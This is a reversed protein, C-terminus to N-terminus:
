RNQQPWPISKEGVSISSIAGLDNIEHFMPVEKKRLAREIIMTVLIASPAFRFPHWAFCLPALAALSLFLQKEHWSIWLARAYVILCLFLAFLGLDWPVQAFENHLFLVSRSSFDNIRVSIRMFTSPGVGLLINKWNLVHRGCTHDSYLWSCLYKGGWRELRGDMDFHDNHAHSLIVFYLGVLTSAAAGLFYRLRLRRFAWVLAYTALMAQATAAHHTLITPIALFWLWLPGLPLSLAVFACNFSPAIMLGRWGLWVCALEWVMLFPLYRWFLIRCRRDMFLALAPILAVEIANAGADAQFALTEFGYHILPFEIVYIVRILAYAWLIKAPWYLDIRSILYLVALSLGIFFGLRNTGAALGTKWSFDLLDFHTTLLTNKIIPNEPM